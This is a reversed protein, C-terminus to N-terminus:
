AANAKRADARRRLETVHQRCTFCRWHGKGKEAETLPGSCDACLGRAHRRQKVKTANDVIHGRCHPCRM